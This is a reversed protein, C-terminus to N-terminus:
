LLNCKCLISFTLHTTVESPDTRKVQHKWHQASLNYMELYIIMEINVKRIIKSYECAYGMSEPFELTFLM